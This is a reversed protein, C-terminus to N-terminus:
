LSGPPVETGDKLFYHIGNSKTVVALVDFTRDRKKPHMIKDNPFKYGTTVEILKVEKNKFIVLDTECAASLARFVAYGRTMLDVAVRLENLAGVTVSSLDYREGM